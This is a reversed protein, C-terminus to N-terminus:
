SVKRTVSWKVLSTLSALNYMRITRVPEAGKRDVATESAEAGILVLVTGQPSPGGLDRSELLAMQWVGEGTWVDRPKAEELVRGTNSSPQAGHLAPLVDLVALGRATGILLFRDDVGLPLLTVIPTNSHPIFRSGFHAVSLCRAIARTVPTPAPPPTTLREPPLSYAPPQPVEPTEIQEIDTLTSACYCCM